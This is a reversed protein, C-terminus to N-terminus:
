FRVCSDIPEYTGIKVFSIDFSATTPCCDDIRAKECIEIRESKGELKGPDGM